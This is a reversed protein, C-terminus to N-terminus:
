LRPRQQQMAARGHFHQATKPAVRPAADDADIFFSAHQDGDAVAHDAPQAEGLQLLHEHLGFPLHFSHLQQIEVAATGRLEVDFRALEFFPQGTGVFNLDENPHFPFHHPLEEKM